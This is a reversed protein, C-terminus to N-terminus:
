HLSISHFKAGSRFDFKGSRSGEVKGDKAFPKPNEKRGEGGEGKEEENRERERERERGTVRERQIERDKM